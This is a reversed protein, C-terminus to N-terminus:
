HLKGMFFQKIGRVSLEEVKLSIENAGPAFKVAFNRVETAFTASFLLIQVTKSFKM